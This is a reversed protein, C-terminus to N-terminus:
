SFLEILGDILRDLEWSADGTGAIVNCLCEMVASTFYDSAIDTDNIDLWSRQICFELAVRVRASIMSVISKHLQAFRDDFMRQQIIISFFSSLPPETFTSLVSDLLSELLSQADKAKFDVTFQRGGLESQCLKIMADTMAQQSEFHSYLSAKRIGVEKAVDSLSVNSFGKEESLNLLATIIDDRTAMDANFSVFPLKDITNKEKIKGNRHFM